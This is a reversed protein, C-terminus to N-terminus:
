RDGQGGLLECPPLLPHTMRDRVEALRKRSRPEDEALQMPRIIGDLARLIDRITREVPKKIGRREQRQGRVSEHLTRVAHM